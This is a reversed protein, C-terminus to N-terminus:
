FGYCRHRHSYKAHTGNFKIIAKGLDGKTEADFMISSKVSDMDRNHIGDLFARVQSPRDVPVGYKSLTNNARTHKLCYDDFSWNKLYHEWSASSIEKRAVAIAASRADEGENKTKLFLWINGYHPKM